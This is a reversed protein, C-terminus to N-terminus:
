VEKSCQDAMNIITYQLVGRCLAERELVHLASCETWGHSATQALEQEGEM